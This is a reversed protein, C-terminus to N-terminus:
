HHCGYPGVQASGSTTPGVLATQAVRDASALGEALLETLPAPFVWRSAMTRSSIGTVFSSVTHGENQAGSIPNVM